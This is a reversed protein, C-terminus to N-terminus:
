VWDFKTNLNKCCLWYVIVVIYYFYYYLGSKEKEKRVNFQTFQSQIAPDLERLRVHEFAEPIGRSDPFKKLLRRRSSQLRVIPNIMSKVGVLKIEEEDGFGNHDFEQDQVNAVFVGEDEDDEDDEMMQVEEIQDDILSLPEFFIDTKEKMWPISNLQNQTMKEGRRVTAELFNAKASEINKLCFIFRGFITQSVLWKSVRPCDTVWKGGQIDPPPTMRVSAPDVGGGGGGGGGGAAAAAAAGRGAPDAQQVFSPPLCMKLLTNDNPPAFAPILVDDDLPNPV